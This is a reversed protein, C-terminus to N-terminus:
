RARGEFEDLLAQAGVAHDTDAGTGGGIEEDVFERRQFMVDVGRNGAGFFARSAQFRVANRHDVQVGGGFDGHVDVAGVFRVFVQLQDLAAAGRQCAFFDHRGNRAFEDAD